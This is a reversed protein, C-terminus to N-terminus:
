KFIASANDENTMDIKAEKRQKGISFNWAATVMIMNRQAPVITKESKVMYRSYTDEKFTPGNKTFLYQGMLGFRWSNGVIYNIYLTNSTGTYSLFEGALSRERNRWNVGVNWNGAFWDIAANFQWNSLNHSYDNGRSQYSKFDVGLSFSLNDSLSSEISLSNSLLSMRKQNAFSTIFLTNEGDQTREVFSMVPNHASVYSLTNQINAIGLNKSIRLTTRYKWWDKLNPNGKKIEFRNIRFETNALESLSPSEQTVTGYLNFKWGMLTYVLQLQPRPTWRNMERDNQSMMRGSVGIGALYYFPGFRGNAAAYAYINTDHLKDTSNNDGIYSNSTYAHSLRSGVSLNFLRNFKNLYKVEFIYSLRDGKTGYDYTSESNEFNDTASEKVDHHYDTRRYNGVLNATISSKKTFNRKYYISLQPSLYKEYPETLQYYPNQGNESVKQAYARDPSYYFVGKFTVDFVQKGPLFHNYGAQLTNETFKLPTNMGKFIIDHPQDGILYTNINDIRRKSLSTYDSNFSFSYESNNKSYKGLLANQGNATTVANNTIVAAAYGDTRKKRTINIVAGVSQDYGYELGPNQMYEVKAIEKPRLALVDQRDVPRGDILVIAKEGGALSLEGTMANVRLGPLMLSRLLEFGTVSFKRQNASPIVSLTDGRQIRRSAKVVVEDLQQNAISDTVSQSYASFGLLLSSLIVIIYRNM